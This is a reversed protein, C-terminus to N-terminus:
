IISEIMDLTSLSPTRDFNVAISPTDNVRIAIIPEPVENVWYKAESIKCSEPNGLSSSAIALREVGAPDGGPEGPLVDRLRAQFLLRM